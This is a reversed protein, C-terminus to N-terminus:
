AAARRVAPRLRPSPPRAWRAATRPLRRPLHQRRRPQGQGGGVLLGATSSLLVFASPDRDRTLDHLNWSPTSRPGCCGTSRNPTWPPWYATTSSAPPTCVGARRAPRATRGPRRPRRRRLPRLVAEAGSAALERACHPPASPTRDRRGALLLRRVGHETVPHRAILAGLGGTGGTIRSPATPTGPPRPRRAQRRALRPM